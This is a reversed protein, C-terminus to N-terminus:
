NGHREGDGNTAVVADQAGKVNVAWHLGKVGDGLNRIAADLQDFREYVAPFEQAAYITLRRMEEAQRGNQDALKTLADATRNSASAQREVSTVIAGFTTQVTENMRSFFGGVIVLAVLVIVPWPGWQGLLKFGEVPQKQILEFVALVIAAGGASSLAVKFHRLRGSSTSGSVEGAPAGGSLGLGTM